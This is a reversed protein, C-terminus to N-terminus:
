DYMYSLKLKTMAIFFNEPPGRTAPPDPSDCGKKPCREPARHVPFIMSMRPFDPFIACM